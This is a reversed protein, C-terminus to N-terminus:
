SLNRLVELWKEQSGWLTRQNQREGYIENSYFRIWAHRLINENISDLKGTESLFKTGVMQLTFPWAGFTTPNDEFDLRKFAYRPSFLRANKTAIDIIEDKLSAIEAPTTDAHNKM